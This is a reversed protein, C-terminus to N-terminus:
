QYFTQDAGIKTYCIIVTCLHSTIPSVEPFCIVICIAIFGNSCCNASILNKNKVMSDAFDWSTLYKFCQSAEYNSLRWRFPCGLKEWMNIQWERVKMFCSSLLKLSLSFRLSQEWQRFMVSLMQRLYTWVRDQNLWLM